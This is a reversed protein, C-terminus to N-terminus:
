LHSDALVNNKMIGSFPPDQGDITSPMAITKAVHPELMELITATSM